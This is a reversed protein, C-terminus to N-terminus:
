VPNVLSRWKDEDQADDVGKRGPPREGQLTGVLVRHMFSTLKQYTKLVNLWM